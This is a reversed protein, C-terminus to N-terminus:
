DTRQQGEVNSFGALREFAGDFRRVGLSWAGHTELAGEHLTNMTGPEIVQWRGLCVFKWAGNGLLVSLLPQGAHLTLTGPARMDSAVPEHVDLEVLLESGVALPLFLDSGERDGTFYTFASRGDLDLLVKGGAISLIVLARRAPRDDVYQVLDGPELSGFSKLALEGVTRVFM